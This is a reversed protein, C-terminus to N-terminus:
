QVIQYGQAQLAAMAEQPNMKRHAAYTLVEAMKAVKGATAMGPAAQPGGQVQQTEAGPAPMTLDLQAPDAGGQIAQIRQALYQQNARTTQLKQFFEEPQDTPQPIQKKIRTAEPESMQAGTIAKITANALTNAQAYFAAQAPDIQPDGVHSKIFDGVPGSRMFEPLNQKLGYGASAVYPGVFKQGGGKTFMEELKDLAHLGVDTNVLMQQQSDPLPSDYTGPAESQPVVKTVNHGNERTQVQTMPENLISTAINPDLTKMAMGGFIRKLQRNTVGPIMSPGTDNDANASMGPAGMGPVGAGAGVPPAGGPAVGTPSFPPTNPRGATPTIGAGQPAQAGGALQPQGLAGGFQTFLNSAFQNRASALKLADLDAQATLPMQVGTNPARGADGMGAQPIDIGLDRLNKIFAPNNYAEPGLLEKTTGVAFQKKKEQDAKFQAFVDGVNSLGAGLALAWNAGM